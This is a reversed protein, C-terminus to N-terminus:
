DTGCFLLCSAFEAACDEDLRDLLTSFVLSGTVTTAATSSSKILVRRIYGIGVGGPWVVVACCERLWDSSGMPRGGGGIQGIVMIPIRGASLVGLSTDCVCACWQLRNNDDGDTMVVVVLEKILCVIWM